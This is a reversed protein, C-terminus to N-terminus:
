KIIFAVRRNVRNGMKVSDAVIPRTSGYGVSVIRNEDVGHKILYQAVALAREESLTKNMKQDGIVDTHGEITLNLKPFRKLFAALNDLETFSEPLMISKSQQFMVNKPIYKQITDASVVTNKVPKIPSKLTNKPQKSLPPQKTQYKLKTENKEAIPQNPNLFYKNDIVMIIEGVNPKHSPLGWSLHVEGEKLANFYEVKLDYIKGKEFTMKNAFHGEDHLNWEDIILKNGIWVRIGDDVKASFYYVGSEPAKIKGTWRISYKQSKISFIPPMNWKFDINADIRTAVKKEFNTGEYYDGVLGQQANLRFINLFLAFFFGNKM